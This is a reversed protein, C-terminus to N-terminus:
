IVTNLSGLYKTLLDYLLKPEKQFWKKLYHGCLKDM